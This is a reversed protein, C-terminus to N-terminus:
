CRAAILELTQAVRHPGGTVLSAPSGLGLGDLVV